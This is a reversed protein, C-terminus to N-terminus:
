GKGLPFIWVLPIYPTKSHAPMFAAVGSPAHTREAVDRTCTNHDLAGVGGTISPENRVYNSHTPASYVPLRVWVWRCLIGDTGDFTQVGPTHVAVKEVPVPIGQKIGVHEHIHPLKVECTHAEM